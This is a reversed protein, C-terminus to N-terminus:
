VLHSEMPSFQYCIELCKYIPSLQQTLSSLSIDRQGTQVSNGLPMPRYLGQAHQWPTWWSM